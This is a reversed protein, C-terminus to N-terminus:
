RRGCLCDTGVSGDAFRFSLISQDSTIGSSHSGIAMGRAAVPRSGCVFQMYDLFHCAEGIIRGGGAAPDQVWHSPPIAGANVRYIMVLPERHGAFFERAKAGHESYRRNFGVMLRLGEGAKGPM